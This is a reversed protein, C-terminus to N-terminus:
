RIGFGSPSRRIRGSAGPKTMAVQAPSAQHIAAQEPLVVPLVSGEIGERRIRSATKAIEGATYAASLALRTPVHYDLSFTYMVLTGTGGDLELVQGTGLADGLHRGLDTSDIYQDGTMTPVSDEFFIAQWIAYYAEWDVYCLRTEGRLLAFRAPDTTSGSTLIMVATSENIREKRLGGLDVTLDHIRPIYRTIADAMKVSVECTFASAALKNTDTFPPVVIQLRENPGVYLANDDFGLHFPVILVSDYAVGNGTAEVFRGRMAEQHTILSQPRRLSVIDGLESGGHHSIILPGTLDTALHMHAAAANTGKFCLLVDSVTGPGEFTVVGGVGANAITDVLNIRM